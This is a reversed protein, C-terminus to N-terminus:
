NEKKHVTWLGSLSVAAPEPEALPNFLNALSPVAEAAAPPPPVHAEVVPPAPPEPPNEKARAEVGEVYEDSPTVVPIGGGTILGGGTNTTGTPTTGGGCNAVCHGDLALAQPAAVLVGVLIMLWVKNM